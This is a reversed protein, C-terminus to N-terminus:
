DSDAVYEVEIAVDEVPSPVRRVIKKPTQKQFIDGLVLQSIATHMGNNFLDVDFISSAEETMDKAIQGLSMKDYATKFSHVNANKESVFEDPIMENVDPVVDHLPSRQTYNSNGAITGSETIVEKGATSHVHLNSNILESHLSPSLATSKDM